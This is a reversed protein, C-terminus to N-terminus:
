VSKDNMENGAYILSCARKHSKNETLTKSHCQKVCSYIRHTQRKHGEWRKKKKKKKVIVGEKGFSLM